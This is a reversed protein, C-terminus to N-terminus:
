QAPSTQLHRFAAGMGGIGGLATVLAGVKVGELRIAEAAQQKAASATGNARVDEALRRAKLLDNLGRVSVGARGAVRDFRRLITVAEIAEPPSPFANPPPVPTSM